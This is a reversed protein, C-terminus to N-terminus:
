LEIDRSPQGFYYGQAYDVGLSKTLTYIEKSYVYEAVTKIGMRQAFEVITQVVMRSSKDKDINKIMSGDIKIYDVDLQILYEFNSYGTGFDDISIQVGHKKVSKIFKSVPVFSEIGESEIIEVVMRKGIDGKAIEEYIYSTIDEDLIDDVSLNISFLYNNNKFRKFADKLVAKTLNSYVKNKKAIDLFHIPTIYNNQDDIMRMLCEYKVTKGTACDVIPQFLAIIRDEEIARSLRKAWSINLEYLHTEEMSENYTLQHKNEKKAIKLAIDAHSLLLELGYSIGITIRLHIDEVNQIQFNHKTISSILYTALEEFERIDMSGNCLYAFEDAHLRYLKQNKPLIDQLYATFAVLLEDGVTNGYLDNIEQFRDIDIIMLLSENQNDLAEILSIRNNVKTLSDSYFQNEISDLMGNFVNQMSQIEHINNKFSARKRIDKSDKINDILSIFKNMPMLMYKQFNIFLILFMILSFFVMFMMFFNIIKNLSIKIEDVPYKIHITGLVSNEKANTHCKLCENKAFVPYYYEITEEDVINLIEKGKLAEVVFTNKAKIQKDRHIEGYLKSVLSSRYIDVSMKDDVDNLRKTITKLDEKTWGKAMAAYYSEFVIKSTKRADAQALKEIANSKIYEGYLFSIVLTFILIITIIKATLVTYTTTKKNM